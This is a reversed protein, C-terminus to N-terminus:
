KPPTSAENVLALMNMINATAPTAVKMISLM